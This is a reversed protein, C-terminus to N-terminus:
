NALVEKCFNDAQNKPISSSEEPECVEIYYGPAPYSMNYMSDGAMADKPPQYQQKRAWPLDQKPPIAWPQFSLKNITEADM